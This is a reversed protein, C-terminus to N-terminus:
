GVEVPLGVAPDDFGPRIQRCAPVNTSGRFRRVIQRPERFENAAQAFDRRACSGLHVLVRIVFGRDIHEAAFGSHPIAVSEFVVQDDAGSVKEIDGGVHRM